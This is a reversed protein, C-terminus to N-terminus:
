KTQFIITIINGDIDKEDIQFKHNTGQIDFYETIWRRGKGDRLSWKKALPEELESRKEIGDNGDATLVRTTNLNIDTFIGYGVSEGALIQWEENVSNKFGLRRIREHLDESSIDTIFHTYIGCHTSIDWCTKYEDIYNNSTRGLQEAINRLLRFQTDRRYKGCLVISVVILLLIGISAPIFYKIKLLKM